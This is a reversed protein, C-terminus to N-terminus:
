HRLDIAMETPLGFFERVADGSLMWREPDCGKHEWYLYDVGRVKKIYYVGSLYPTIYLSCYRYLIWVGKENRWEHQMAYKMYDRTGAVSKGLEALKNVKAHDVINKM